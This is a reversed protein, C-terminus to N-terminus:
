VFLLLQKNVTFELLLDLKVAGPEFLICFQGLDTIVYGCVGRCERKVNIIWAVVVFVNM